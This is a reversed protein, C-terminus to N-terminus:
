YFQICYGKYLNRAVSRNKKEKLQNEPGTHPSGVSQVLHGAGRLIPLTLTAPPPRQGQLTSVPCLTTRSSWALFQEQVPQHPPRPLKSGNLNHVLQPLQQALRGANIETYKGSTLTLSPIEGEFLHSGLQNECKKRRYPRKAGRRTIDLTESPWGSIFGPPIVLCTYKCTLSFTYHYLYYFLNPYCVM